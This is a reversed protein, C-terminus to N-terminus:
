DYVFAQFSFAGTEADLTGEGVHRWSGDSARLFIVDQLTFGDLEAQAAYGVGFGEITETAKTDESCEGEFTAGGAGALELTVDCAPCGEAPTSAVQPWAWVCGSTANGWALLGTYTGDTIVGEGFWAGGDFSFDGSDVLAGEIAFPVFLVDAAGRDDVALVQIQTFPRWYDEPVNWTGSLSDAEWDMGPPALPFLMQLKDGNPDRIEVEMDVSAGVKTQLVFELNRFTAFGLIYRIDQGNFSQFRPPDNPRVDCSLLTLALLMM